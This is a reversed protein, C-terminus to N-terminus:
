IIEYYKFGSKFSHFRLKVRGSNGKKYESKSLIIASIGKFNFHLYEAYNEVNVCMYNGLMVEALTKKARKM